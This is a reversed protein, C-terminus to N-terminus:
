KDRALIEEIEKGYEKSYRLKKECILDMFTSARCVCMKNECVIAHFGVFYNFFSEHYSGYKKVKDMQKKIYHLHLNRKAIVDHLEDKIIYFRERKAYWQTAKVVCEACIQRNDIVTVDVGDNMGCYSCKIM